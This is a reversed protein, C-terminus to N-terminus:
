IQSLKKKKKKKKPYTILNNLDPFILRGLITKKKYTFEILIKMM